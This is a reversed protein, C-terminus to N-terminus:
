DHGTGGGIEIKRVEPRQDVQPLKPLELELVGKKYDAKIKAVDINSVDFSRSFSGYYRERRIINGRKDKEEKQDERTASVVMTDGQVEIAIDKQDFGPLEAEVLYSGDKERIDVRFSSDGNLSNSLSRQFDDMMSFLNNDRHWPILNMM